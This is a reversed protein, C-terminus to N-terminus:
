IKIKHYERMYELYHERHAHYYARQRERSCEKCYSYSCRWRGNSIFTYFETM